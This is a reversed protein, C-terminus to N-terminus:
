RPPATCSDGRRVSHFRQIYRRSLRLRAAWGGGSRFARRHTRGADSQVRAGAHVAPAADNIRTRRARQPRAARRGVHAARGARRAVRTLGPM